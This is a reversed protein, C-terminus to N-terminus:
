HLSGEKGVEGRQMRAIKIQFWTLEFTRCLNCVMDNVLSNTNLMPNKGRTGRTFRLSAVKLNDKFFDCVM